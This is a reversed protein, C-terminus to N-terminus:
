FDTDDCVSIAPRVINTRDIFNLVYIVMSIPVFRM